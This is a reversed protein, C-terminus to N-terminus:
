MIVSKIECPRMELDISCSCTFDSWAGVDVFNYLVPRSRVSAMEVQGVFIVVRFADRAWV